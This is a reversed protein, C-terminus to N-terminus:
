NEIYKFVSNNLIGRINWINNINDPQTNYSSDTAKSIIEMTDNKKPLNIEWFTWAWARNREQDKGDKLEATNWSIGGNMSVDVRVIKKGGGSYAIGKITVIDNDGDIVDCIISQVPLEEITPINNITSKDIDSISKINNSLGKYAIGRQWTSMSEENSLKIEDLWKVNKGGFYGPVIVRLPYGHDHPIDEDNMKFAIIVDEKINNVKDMSISADFPSDLGILHVYKENNSFEYDDLIDKLYVGTWKANFVAGGKWPLGLTSDGEKNFEVRRNGACQITSTVTQHPYDKKIDKLSIQISQDKNTLTLFYNEENVTPVPHHNRVFMNELPTIYHKRLKILDPEANYPKNKHVNLNNNRTPENSYPDNIVSYKKTHGIKYDNLINLVDPTYHQQYLEWYPELPKGAAEMIKDKGGPHADIFPTINYVNGKYSVWADNETNHKKIDDYTYFNKNLHKKYTYVIGSFVSLNISYKTFRNM